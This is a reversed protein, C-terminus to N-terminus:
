NFEYYGLLYNTLQNIPLIKKKGTKLLYLVIEDGGEHLSVVFSINKQKAYDMQKDFATLEFYIEASIGANRLLKYIKISDFDLLKNERVVLVKVNELRDLILKYGSEGHHLWHAVRTITATSAGTKEAIKRYPIKESLMKVIQFRQTIAAIESLTCIDRFFRKCEEITELGLIVQYLEKQMKASINAKKM